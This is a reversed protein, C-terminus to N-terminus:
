LTKMKLYASYKNQIPFPYFPHPHFKATKAGLTKQVNEPRVIILYKRGVNIRVVIYNRYVDKTPFLNLNFPQFKGIDHYNYTDVYLFALHYSFIMEHQASFIMEDLVSSVIGHERFLIHQTFTCTCYVEKDHVTHLTSYIYIKLKLPLM